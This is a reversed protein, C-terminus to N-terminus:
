TPHMPATPAGICTWSQATSQHCIMLGSPASVQDEASLDSAFDPMTSVTTSAAQRRSPHPFSRGALFLIPSFLFSLHLSFPSLDM